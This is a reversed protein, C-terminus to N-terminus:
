SSEPNEIAWYFIFFKYSYYYKKCVCLFDMKLWIRPIWDALILLPFMLNTFYDLRIFSNILRSILFTARVRGSSINPGFANHELNGSCM